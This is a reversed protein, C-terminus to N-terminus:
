DRAASAKERRAAKARAWRGVYATAHDDSRAPAPAPEAVPGSALLNRCANDDQDWVAGCACAHTLHAAADFGCVRGCAHCTQTMDKAPLEVTPLKERLCALLRGPAAIQRQLRAATDPESAEVAPRRALDRWDVDEVLLRGYCRRAWAAFNRYLNDRWAVAKRLQHAEWDRLHRERLRWAELPAYGEEDGDFRNNRWHVALWYLRDPSRWQHLTKAREALWDPVDRAALWLSLAERAANFHQDRISRLDHAKTWRGQDAASILLEGCHGDAGRWYAVRLGAATQRWGLDIALDGSGMPAAAKSADVVLTAQWHEGYGVRRRHVKVWKILADDPVPRHLKIPFRAWIPRRNEDSQIRLALINWRPLTPHPEIRARSDNGALFDEAPLGYPIQVAVTGDGTWRQFRPPAGKRAGRMADEIVLYTGHYCGCGARAALRAQHDEQDIAQLRQRFDPDAFAQTRAAKRQGRLDKLLQRLEAIPAKLHPSTKHSRTQSHEAGVQRRLEALETEAAAIRQEVQAVAAFQEAMAQEVRERRKREIEILLNRYQHALRMQRAVLEANATPPKLGYSLNYLM